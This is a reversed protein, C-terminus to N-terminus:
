KPLAKKVSEPNVGVYRMARELTVGYKSAVSELDSLQITDLTKGTASELDSVKGLKRAESRILEIDFAWGRTETDQPTGPKAQTQNQPQVKRIRTAKQPAPQTQAQAPLEKAEAEITVGFRGVRKMSDLRAQMQAGSKLEGNVSEDSELAEIYYDNYKRELLADHRMAVLEREREISERELLASSHEAEATARKVKSDVEAALKATNARAAPDSLWVLGWGIIVLVPSAPLLHNWFDEVMNLENGALSNFSVITNGGLVLMELAYFTLSIFWQPTKIPISVHIYLPLILASAGGTVAGFMAVIGFPSLGLTGGIHMIVVSELGAVAISYVAYVLLSLTARTGGGFVREIINQNNTSNNM